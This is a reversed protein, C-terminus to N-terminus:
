SCGPLAGGYCLRCQTPSVKFRRARVCPPGVQLATPQGASVQNQSATRNCAGLSDCVNGEITMNNGPLLVMQACGPMTLAATLVAVGDDFCGGPSQGQWSVKCSSSNSPSCIQAEGDVPYDLYFAYSLPLDHDPEHWHRAAMTFNDVLATGTHPSVTVVGGTPPSNTYILVQLLM